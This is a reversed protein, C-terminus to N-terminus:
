RAVAARLQKLSSFGDLDLDRGNADEVWRGAVGRLASLTPYSDLDLDRGTEDTVWVAATTTM